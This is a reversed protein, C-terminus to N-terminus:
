SKTNYNKPSVGFYKKFETSFASLNEYGLDNYIETPRNNEQLLSAAKLMRQEIFYQKPTTHFLEFFKRKFTSKSMNCLFSLEDITLHKDSQEQIIKLFPIDKNQNLITRFFDSLLIPNKQFLYLLIEEIKADLLNKNKSLSGKLLSLSKEYNLVYDDKLFYIINNEVPNKPLIILNKALFRILYNDSFFLLTSQYKKEITIKETMLVNGAKLLFISDNNIYTKTVRNIVEKHGEQMFCLVNQNFQVKNNQTSQDTTYFYYNIDTINGNFFDDPLSYIEEKM